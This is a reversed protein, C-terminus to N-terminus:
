RGMKEKMGTVTEAIEEDSGFVIGFILYAIVGAVRSVRELM